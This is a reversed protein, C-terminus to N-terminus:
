ERLSIAADLRSARRAPLWAAVGASGLLVLAATGFAAPDTPAVDFLLSQLATGLGYSVVLGFGIGLASIMVGRRLIL